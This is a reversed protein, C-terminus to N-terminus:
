NIVVDFYTKESIIYNFILISLTIICIAILPMQTKINSVININIAFKIGKRLFVIGILVFIVLILSSYNFYTTRHQETVYIGKEILLNSIINMSYGLYYLVVPLYIINWKFINSVFLPLLFLSICLIIYIEFM